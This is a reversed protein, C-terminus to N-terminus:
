TFNKGGGVEDDVVNLSVRFGDRRASGFALQDRVEDLNM